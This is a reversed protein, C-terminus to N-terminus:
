LDEMMRRDSKMSNKVRIMAAAVSETNWYFYKYSPNGEENFFDTNVTGTPELYFLM